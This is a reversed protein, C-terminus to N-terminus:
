EEFVKTLQNGTHTYGLRKMLNETSNVTKTTVRIESIGM